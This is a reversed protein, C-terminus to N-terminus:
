DHYYPLFPHFPRTPTWFEKIRGDDGYPYTVRKKEIVQPQDGCM